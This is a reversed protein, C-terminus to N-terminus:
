PEHEEENVCATLLKLIESKHMEPNKYKIHHEITELHYKQVDPHLICYFLSHNDIRIISRCPSDELEHPPLHYPQYPEDYFFQTIEELTPQSAHSVQSLETNNVRAFTSAAKRTQNNSNFQSSSHRDMSATCNMSGDLEKGDCTKGDVRFGDTESSDSENEPQFERRSYILNNSEPSIFSNKSQDPNSDINEEYKEYYNQSNKVNQHNSRYEESHVELTFFEHPNGYYRNVIEEISQKAGDEDELIFSKYESSYKVIEEIESMMYDQSPYITSNHLIIKYNQSLKNKQMNEFLNNNKKEKVPYYIKARHDIQSDSNSILNCNLLPYIYNELIQKSSLSKNTFEATKEILEKTTLALRDETKGNKSDPDTKNNYAKLFVENYWELVYSRVGNNYDMLSIAEKFDDFTALPIIQILYDSKNKIFKIKPRRRSNILTSLSIFDFFRGAATMDSAETNPVCVSITQYFPNFIQNHNTKDPGNCIDSVDQQIGIIIERAKDKEADSVVNKEYLFKPLSKEISIHKVANNYKEKTMKPNVVNFRRQIEPFRKYHSYDIAATFIIAPFGRLVNTKTKIGNNTDTFDYEAENRDHSLLSMIATFLEVPPTDLFVITLGTLDILKRSQKPLDKIEQELEKIDHRRAQKLNNDNTSLIESEYKQIELEIEARRKELSVYKGSEDKIVLQGPRHFLAKPTMGAICIVDNNPFLEITKIVAHTKGEGSPANIALNIPKNSKASLCTYLILKVLDEENVAEKTIVDIVYQLGDQYEESIM